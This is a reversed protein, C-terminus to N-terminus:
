LAKNPKKLASRLQKINKALVFKVYNADYAIVGEGLDYFIQKGGFLEQILQKKLIRLTDNVYFMEDYTVTKVKEILISIAIATKNEQQLGTQLISEHRMISVIFKNRLEKMCALLEKRFEARESDSCAIYNDISFKQNLEALYFNQNM